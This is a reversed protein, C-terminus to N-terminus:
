RLGKRRKDEAHWGREAWGSWGSGMFNGRVRQRKGFRYEGWAWTAYFLLFTLATAIIIQFLSPSM